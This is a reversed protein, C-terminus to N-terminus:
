KSLIFQDVLFQGLAISADALAVAFSQGALHENFNGFDIKNPHFEGLQLLPVNNKLLQLVKSDNSSIGSATIIVVVDDNSLDSPVCYDGVPSGVVEAALASEFCPPESVYFRFDIGLRDRVVGTDFVSSLLHATVASVCPDSDAIVACKSM